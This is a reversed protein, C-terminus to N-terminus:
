VRSFFRRGSRDIFMERRGDGRCQAFYTPLFSFSLSRRSIILAGRDNYMISNKLLNTDCRPTFNEERSFKGINRSRDSKQGTEDYGAHRIISNEMGAEDTTGSERPRHNSIYKNTLNRRTPAAFSFYFFRHSVGAERSLRLGYKSFRAARSM